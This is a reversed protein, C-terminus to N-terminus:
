AHWWRIDDRIQEVCYKEGAAELLRTMACLSHGYHDM